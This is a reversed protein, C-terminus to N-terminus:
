INLLFIEFLINGSTNGSKSKYDIESLTNLLSLLKKSSFNDCNELAISVAMPKVKVISAIANVSLREEKLTKVSYLLRIQSSISAIINIADKEKQILRKYLEITKDKNRRAIANVLDFIDDDYERIVIKDIDESTINKDNDDSKYSKIKELENLIKENNGLCYSVFYKVTKNEMTFNDLHCKVLYESSIGSEIIEVNKSLLEKIEKKESIKSSIMILYNDSPNTLYEKLYKLEKNVEGEIFSCNYCIIMKCNSLFNFTDLEEVVASISTDTMDYKIIELKKEKIESRIKSIKSDIVVKDNSIILFNNKM